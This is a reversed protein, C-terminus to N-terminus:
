SAHQLVAAVEMTSIEESPSIKPCRRLATSGSVNGFAPQPCTCLPPPQIIYYLKWKLYDHGYPTRIRKPAPRRAAATEHAAASRAGDMVITSNFAVYSSRTYIDSNETSCILSSAGSELTHTHDSPSTTPALM